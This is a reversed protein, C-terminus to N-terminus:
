GNRSVNDIARMADTCPYEGLPGSKLWCNTTPATAESSSCNSYVFALCSSNAQGCLMM